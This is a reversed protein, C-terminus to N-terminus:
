KLISLWNLFPDTRPCTGSVTHDHEQSRLPDAGGGRQGTEAEQQQHGAPVQDGSPFLATVVCIVVAVHVCVYGCACVCGCACHHTLQLCCLRNCVFRYDKVCLCYDIVCLCVYM